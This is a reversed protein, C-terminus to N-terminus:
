TGFMNYFQDGIILMGNGDLSYIKMLNKCVDVVHM